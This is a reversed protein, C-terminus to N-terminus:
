PRPLLRDRPRSRLPIWHDSPSTGLAVCVGQGGPGKGKLTMGPPSRSLPGDSTPLRTPSWRTGVVTRGLCPSPTSSRRTRDMVPPPTSLVSIPGRRGPDRDRGYRPQVHNSMTGPHLVHPSMICFNYSDSVPNTLKTCFHRQSESGGGRRM